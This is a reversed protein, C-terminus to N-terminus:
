KSFAVKLCEFFSSFFISHIKKWLPLEKLTWIFRVRNLYTNNKYLMDVSSLFTKIEQRSISDRYVNYLVSLTKIRVDPMLGYLMPQCNVYDRLSARGEVNKAIVNDAHHRYYMLAEGIDYRNGFIASTFLIFGDYMISSLEPSDNKHALVISLLQRNIMMSCGQSSLPTLFTVAYGHKDPETHFTAMTNGVADIDNSHSSVLSPQGNEIEVLKSYSKEIKNPMWIDDQDCIAIYEGSCLSLAKYFNENVGLRPNNVFYVLGNSERYQDLISVTNDDSCDDCVIVEDPVLTQSYLSDLQQRLFRQGNYTAIVVSINPKM